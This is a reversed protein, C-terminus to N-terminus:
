NKKHWYEMRITTKNIDKYMNNTKTENQKTSHETKTHEYQKTNYGKHKRASAKYTTIPM